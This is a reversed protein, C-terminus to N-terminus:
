LFFSIEDNEILMMKKKFRPMINADGEPRLADVVDVTRIGRVARRGLGNKQWARSMFKQGECHCANGDRM